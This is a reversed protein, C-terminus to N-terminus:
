CRRSLDRQSLLAKLKDSQDELFLLASQEVPELPGAKDALERLFRYAYKFYRYDLLDSPIEHQMFGWSSINIAKGSPRVYWRAERNYKKPVGQNKYKPPM